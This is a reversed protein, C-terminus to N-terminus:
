MRGWGIRSEEPTAARPKQRGKPEGKRESQGIRVGVRIGGSWPAFDELDAGRTKKSKEKGLEVCKNSGGRDAQM